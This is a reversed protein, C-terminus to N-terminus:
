PERRYPERAEVNPVPSVTLAALYKQGVEM